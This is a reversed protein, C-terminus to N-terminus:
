EKLMLVIPGHANVSSVIQKSDTRGRSQANHSEVRELADISTVPSPIQTTSQFGLSKYLLTLTKM